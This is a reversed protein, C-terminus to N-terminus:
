FVLGCMRHINIVDRKWLLKESDIKSTTRKDSCVLNFTTHLVKQRYIIIVASDAFWMKPYNLVVCFTFRSDCIRRIGGISLFSMIVVEISFYHFCFCIPSNTHVNSIFNKLTFLLAATSTKQQWITKKHRSSDNIRVNWGKSDRQSWIIFLKFLETGKGWARVAAFNGTFGVAGYVEPSEWPGRRWWFNEEVALVRCKGDVGIFLPRFVRVRPAFSANM